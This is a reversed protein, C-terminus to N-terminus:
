SDDAPVAVQPLVAGADAGFGYHGASGSQQERLALTAIIRGMPTDAVDATSVRDALDGGRVAALVGGPETAALPGAVVAGASWDDLAEVLPLWETAADETPEGDGVAPDSDPSGTALLVLDARTAVDGDVTVLDGGRLGELVATADPDTEGVAGGDPAAVAWALVAALEGATGAEAPPRPDLYQVFQGSISRRFAANDPDTWAPTLTVRGTVTGGAAEVQGALADVADPGASPLAVVVVRAGALQDAVVSGGVEAVFRDRRQIQEDRNAVALQLNEKDRRLADVQNTLTDGISERLPGAGLVVGIALALFVSVLSVLHYKFDIM